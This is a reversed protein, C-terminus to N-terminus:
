GETGLVVLFHEEAFTPRNARVLLDVDGTVATVGAAFTRVASANVLRIAVVSAVGLAVGLVTLAFLLRGSRLHALLAPGLLRIVLRGATRRRPPARRRRARRPRPRAHRPRPHRGGDRVARVPPRRRRAGHRRRPQRDARRRAPAAAPAAVGARHRRAAARGGLSRRRRGGGPGRPRGARPAGDRAGTGGPGP